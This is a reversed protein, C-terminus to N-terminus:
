INTAQLQINRERSSNVDNYINNNETITWTPENKKKQAIVQKTHRHMTAAYAPVCAYLLPYERICAFECM